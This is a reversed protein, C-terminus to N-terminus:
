TGTAGTPRSHLSRNSVVRRLGPRDHDSHVPIGDVTRDGPELRLGLRTHLAISDRNGPSTICGVERAGRAIAAARFRAYLWRGLGARQSAPDVGVFHVYALGLRYPSLSGILFAVLRGDGEILHSTDAFHEFFLRPLLAARERAGAEGAFDAWWHGLVAQVREHDEADPHRVSLGPPLAVAPPESM